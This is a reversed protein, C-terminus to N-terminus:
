KKKTTKKKSKVQAPTDAKKSLPADQKVEIAVGCRIFYNAANDELLAKEGKTHRLHDKLFKIRKAM